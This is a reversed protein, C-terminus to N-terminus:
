ETCAVYKPSRFLVLTVAVPVVVTELAVGVIANLGGGPV